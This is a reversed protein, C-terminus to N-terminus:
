RRKFPNLRSASGTRAIALVVDSILPSSPLLRQLGIALSGIAVAVVIGFGDARAPLWQPRHRRVPANM